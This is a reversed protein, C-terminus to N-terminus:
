GRQVVSADAEAKVLDQGVMAAAANLDAHSTRTSIQWEAAVHVWRDLDDHMFSMGDLWDRIAQPENDATFHKDAARRFAGLFSLDLEPKSDKRYDWLRAASNPDEMTVRGEEGNAYQAHGIIAQGQEFISRYHAINATLVAFAGERDAPSATAPLAVTPSAVADNTPTSPTLAGFPSALQSGFVLGLILLCGM